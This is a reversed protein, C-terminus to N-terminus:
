AAAGSLIELMEGRKPGLVLPPREHRTEYAELAKQMVEPRRALDEPSDLMHAVRLFARMLGLDSRMAPILGQRLVARAYAAPDTSGDPREVRYPDEGRRLAENVRIADADQRLQALLWPACEREISAEFELALGLLDDPHKRLADALAYASIWALSCGRGTLPNAHVLSDGVAVLGLALPRGDEVLHRRTNRLNGMGHTPTIPRAVDPDIWEQLMPLSQSAAQFGPTRLIARMPDDDPAAAMTISFTGGDGPFIGFKLYGLDGGIIGDQNPREAGPELRYFRSSYFIGCSESEVRPKPAGAAVLWDGLKTRRGSADVVLDAAIEETQGKGRSVVVGTVRPLGSARDRETCLGTVEMADRFEVLGTDLVHRRLVWDFTIRRCALLVIDDDAPEFEPNEFYQQAQLRFSLREAGAALLKQLLEPEHDRVLTVMRALFAHSQHLQPCGRREWQEFAEDASEPLPAADKELLTVRHGDRALALATGLGGVSGGIVVVHKRM